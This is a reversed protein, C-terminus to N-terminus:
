LQGAPKKGQPTHIKAMDAPQLVEEIMMVDLHNTENILSNLLGATMEGTQGTKVPSIGAERQEMHPGTRHHLVGKRTPGPVATTGEEIQQVPVKVSIHGQHATTEKEKQIHDPRGPHVTVVAKRDKVQPVLVIQHIEIEKKTPVVAEQLSEEQFNNTQIQSLHDPVEPSRM